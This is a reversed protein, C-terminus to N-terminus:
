TLRDLPRNYTACSACKMGNAAREDNFTERDCELCRGSFECKPCIPAVHSEIKGQWGCSACRFLDFGKFEEMEQRSKNWDFPLSTM